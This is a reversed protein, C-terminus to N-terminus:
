DDKLMDLYERRREKIYPLMQPSDLFRLFEEKKMWRYDITEGEQLLISDPDQSTECLYCHFISHLEPYVHRSEFSFNGESIGTEEFLERKVAELSTEGALASGGASAEYLGPAQKKEMSRQMLLFDGSTHRVLVEVVLHYIGEPIPTNRALLFGAPSEDEYIADCLEAPPILNREVLAKYIGDDDVSSTVFDAVKKLSDSANGMAIGVDVAKLLDEDNGGDGFALSEERPIGFHELFVDVGRHKGSEHSIVDNFLPHWRLVRSQPMYHSILGDFEQPMYLNLQYIERKISVSPEELSYRSLTSGLLTDIKRADESTFNRFLGELSIFECTIPYKHLFDLLGQLDEKKIPSALLVLDGTFCYQGNLTVFGDFDLGHNKLLVAVRPGRGTAAILKIGQKKLEHLAYLTTPPISLSQHSLLTGDVDFFIISTM